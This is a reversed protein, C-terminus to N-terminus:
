GGTVAAAIIIAIGIMVAGIIIALSTNQDEEIEKRVSFPSVKVILWFVLLFVVIGIAAFVVAALLNELAMPHRERFTQNAGETASAADALIAMTKLM